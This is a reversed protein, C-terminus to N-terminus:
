CPVVFCSAGAKTYLVSRRTLFHNASGRGHLVSWGVAQLLVSNRCVCLSSLWLKLVSRTAYRQLLVHAWALLQATDHCSMALVVTCASNAVRTKSKSYMRLPKVIYMDQVQLHMLCAYTHWLHLCCPRSIDNIIKVKFKRPGGWWGCIYFKRISFVISM